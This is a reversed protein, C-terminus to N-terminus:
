PEAQAAGADVEGAEGGVSGPDEINEVYGSPGPPPMQQAFATTAISLLGTLVITYICKM